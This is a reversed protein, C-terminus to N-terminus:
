KRDDIIGCAYCKTTLWLGGKFEVDCREFMHEGSVTKECAKIGPKRPKRKKPTVNRIEAYGSWSSVSGDKSVITKPKRKKSMEKKTKMKKEDKM